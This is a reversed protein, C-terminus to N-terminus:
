PDALITNSSSLHAAPSSSPEIKLDGYSSSLHRPSYDLMTAQLLRNSGVMMMLSSHYYSSEKQPCGALEQVSGKMMGLHSYQSCDSGIEDISYLYLCLRNSYPWSHHTDECRNELCKRSVLSKVWNSEYSWALSSYSSAM